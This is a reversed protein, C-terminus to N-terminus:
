PAITAVVSSELLWTGGATAIVTVGSGKFAALTATSNAGTTGDLLTTGTFTIVHAADSNSIITMRTGAQGASPAAVTMAAATAKTIIHIANAITIAGDVSYTYTGQGPSTGPSFLIARIVGGISSAPAAEVAQGVTVSAAAPRVTVVSYDTTINVASGGSTASVSFANATLGASIVYYVLGVTLGAGGTLVSFTVAQGATFGHDTITILDDDAEGTGTVTAGRKAFRGSSWLELEDGFAVATNDGIRVFHIGNGPALFVSAPWGVASQGTQPADNGRIMTGIIRDGPGALDIGTSTLKVAVDSHASLDAAVPLSLVTNTNM